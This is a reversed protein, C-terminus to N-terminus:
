YYYDIYIYWNKIKPILAHLKQKLSNNEKCQYDRTATVNASQEFVYVRHFTSFALAFLFLSNSLSGVFLDAIIIQLIYWFVWM